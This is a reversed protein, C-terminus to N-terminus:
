IVSPLTPLSASVSISTLSLTMEKVSTVSMALLLASQSLDQM